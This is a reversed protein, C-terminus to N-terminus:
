TTREDHKTVAYQMVPMLPRLGTLGGVPGARSVAIEVLEGGWTRYAAMLRERAELTVANAVLRGGVSVMRWAGDLVGDATLGGGIFVADPVGDVSALVGPATGQLIELKPVGLAAANRAAVAARDRDAEIGVARNRPHLRLWEIAVSGNGLGIDLLREGPQPALRALTAARVERKTLKGDHEFADDPLGPAPSRVVAEPGAVCIVAVANLDAVTDHSWTAATGDIRREGAGVGLATMHEFVHISSDGYGATTLYAAVRAPTGGNESLILLRACPYVARALTEFPRGHLTLMEVDALPWGLKAAMLAFAGPAPIVLRQDEPVHRCVAVGAGFWMPDGTVLVCVRRGAMEPLRQATELVSDTWEIREGAFEPVMSQHRAAGVLVDATEILARTAPALGAPGDDGIGIVSLWRTM